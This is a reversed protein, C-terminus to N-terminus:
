MRNASSETASNKKFLMTFSAIEAKRNNSYMAFRETECFGSEKLFQVMDQCSKTLSDEFYVEDAGSILNKTGALVTAENGDVDIKIKNPRTLNLLTFLDDLSFQLVKASHARLGLRSDFLDGGEISQLADGYAMDRFRVNVIKPSDGCAFPLIVM